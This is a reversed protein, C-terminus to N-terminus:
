NAQATLVFCWLHPHPIPHSTPALCCFENEWLEPTQFDLIPTDTQKTEQPREGQNARPQRGIDECPEEKGHRCM